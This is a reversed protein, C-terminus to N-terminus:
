LEGNEVILKWIEEYDDEFQEFQGGVSPLMHAVQRTTADERWMVSSDGRLVNLGTRHNFDAVTRMGDFVLVMAPDRSLSRPMGSVWDRDGAYHYNTYIPAGGGGSQRYRFYMDHYRDCPHGGTHSPCYFVEPAEVYHEAFLWGLGEWRPSFIGLHAAMLEQKNEGHRGYVAPPLSNKHDDAFMVLAFGDQRLNSSCVVRRANERLQGLAPLLLSTLLLTVALM